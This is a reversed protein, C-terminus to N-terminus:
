RQNIEPDGSRNDEMGVVSFRLCYQTLLSTQLQTEDKRQFPTMLAGAIDEWGVGAGDFWAWLATGQESGGCRGGWPALGAARHRVPLRGLLLGTPPVPILPSQQTGFKVPPSTTERTESLTSLRCPLRQAWRRHSGEVCLAECGMCLAAKRDATCM